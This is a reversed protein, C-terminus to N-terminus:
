ETGVLKHKEIGANKEEMRKRGEGLQHSELHDGYTHIQEQEQKSLTNKLNLQPYNHM